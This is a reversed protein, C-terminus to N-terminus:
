LPLELYEPITDNFKLEMWFNIKTKENKENIWSSRDYLKALEEFKEQNFNDKNGDIMGELIIKGNKEMLNFDKIPFKVKNGNLIIEYKFSGGYLLGYIRAFNNYNIQFNNNCSYVGECDFEFLGITGMFEYAYKIYNEESCYFGRVVKKEEKNPKSNNEENGDKQKKKVIVNNIKFQNIVIPQPRSVELWSISNEDDDDYPNEIEDSNNTDRPSFIIDYILIKDQNNDINHIVKQYVLHNGETYKILNLSTNIQNIEEASFKSILQKDLENEIKIKVDKNRLLLKVDNINFSYLKYESIEKFDGDSYIGIIFNKDFSFTMTTTVWDKDTYDFNFFLFGYNDYIFKINYCFELTILNTKEDRELIKFKLFTKVVMESNEYNEYEKVEKCELSMVAKNDNNVKAYKLFENYEKKKFYKSLFHITPIYDYEVIDKTFDDGLYLVMYEKLVVNKQTFNFDVKRILQLIKDERERIGMKKRYNKVEELKEPMITEKIHTIENQRLCYDFEKSQETSACGM